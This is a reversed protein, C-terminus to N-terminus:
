KELLGMGAMWALSEPLGRRLEELPPAGEFQALDHVIAQHDRTGDLLLLLRRAPEDLEVLAHRVNAVLNFERAQYRALRSAAPMEGVSRQCAFDHVHCQAFSTFVMAGLISRLSQRNKAYPLLEEFALPLPYSRGLALALPEAAQGATLRVGYAGEIQDDVLYAPSSFSMGDFLEPRPSRDLPVERRCLLTEGFARLFLFDIYQARELADDKLWSLTGRIDFAQQNAADSLYQLGHASAHGVFEHFYFSDNTEALDDHALHGPAYQLLRSIEENLVARWAPQVTLSKGLWELFWRGQEVREKADGCHRTHYQMMERIMKRLHRGPLANYDIFAVGHPALRARCVGLLAARVEAPVWSYVGHAIIYDFEGFSDGITRLDAAIMEINSLGLESITRGAAAIPREALDVGVFRSEPLSYAMPVLNGGDGCGIELVRCHRVPAPRMGLLTALTALRDPHTEVRPYSTYPIADYPNESVGEM